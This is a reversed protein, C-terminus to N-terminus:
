DGGRVKEGAQIDTKPLARKVSALGQPTVPCGDVNLKELNSL